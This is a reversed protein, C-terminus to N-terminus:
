IHDKDAGTKLDYRRSSGNSFTLIVAGQTESCGQVNSSGIRGRDAGTKADYRRATGNAYVVVTYDGGTSGSVAQSSGVRGKDGGTKLDVIRAQGSKIVVGIPNSTSRGISTDFKPNRDASNGLSPFYPFLIFIVIPWYKNRCNRPTLVM